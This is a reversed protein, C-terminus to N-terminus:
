FAFFELYFLSDATGWHDSAKQCTRSIECVAVLPLAISDNAVMEVMM